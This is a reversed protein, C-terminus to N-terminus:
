DMRYAWPVDDNWVSPCVSPRSVTAIGRLAYLADRPLFCLTRDSTQITFDDAIVCCYYQKVFM